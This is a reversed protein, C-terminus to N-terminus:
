VVLEIQCIALSNNEDGEDDIPLQPTWMTRSNAVSINVLLM